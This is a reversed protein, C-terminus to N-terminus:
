SYDASGTDYKRPYQAMKIRENISILRDRKVTKDIM